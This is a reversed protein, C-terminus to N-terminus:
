AEYHSYNGREGVCSEQQDAAYFSGGDKGHKEAIIRKFCNVKLGEQGDCTLGIVSGVEETLRLKLSCPLVDPESNGLYLGQEHADVTEEVVCEELREEAAVEGLLGSGPAACILSSDQDCQGVGALVTVTGKAAKSHSMAQSHGVPESYGDGGKTFESASKLRDGDKGSTTSGFGTRGSVWSLSPRSLLGKDGLKDGGVRGAMGVTTASLTGNHISAPGIEGEAQNRSGDESRNRRGLCGETSGGEGLSGVPASTALVVTTASLPGNHISAPRIEGEAQNRSGDDSHNRFGLGGETFGGEGSSGVPVAMALAPAGNGPESSKGPSSQQSASGMGREGSISQDLIGPGLKGRNATPRELLGLGVSPCVKPTWLKQKHNPGLGPGAGMKAGMDSKGKSLSNRSYKAVRGLNNYGLDPGTRELEKLAAEIRGLGADLEGRLCRLWERCHGLEQMANFERGKVLQNIVSCAVGREVTHKEPQKVGKSVVKEGSTGGEPQFCKEPEMLVRAPGTQSPLKLESGGGNTEPIHGLVAASVKPSKSLGVVEAFSRGGAVVKETKRERCIRGEWLTSRAKKLEFILRKWGQGYRGEPILITGSRRRGDFVEVTVFRGHRNSCKQVIVRPCGARSQDWFVEPTEVKVVVEVSGWLWAVEDRHIFVSRQKRNSREVIRVGLNGGKISLEFDKSEVSWKRSDGMINVQGGVLVSALV